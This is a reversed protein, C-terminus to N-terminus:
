SAGVSCSAVAAGVSKRGKFLGASAMGSIGGRQPVTSLDIMRFAPTDVAPDKNAFSELFKGGSEGLPWRRM